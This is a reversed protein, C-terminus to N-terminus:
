WIAEFWDSGMRIDFLKLQGLESAPIITPLTTPLKTNQQRNTNKGKTMRFTHRMHITLLM